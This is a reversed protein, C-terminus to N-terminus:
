AYNMACSLINQATGVYTCGNEVKLFYSNKIRHLTAQKQSVLVLKDGDQAQREAFVPNYSAYGRIKSEKNTHKCRIDVQEYKDPNQERLAKLFISADRDEELYADTLSMYSYASISKHIGLSVLEKLSVKIWGHGPDKYFYYM